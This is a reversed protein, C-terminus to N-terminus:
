DLLPLSTLMLAQQALLKDGAYVVEVLEKGGLVHDLIMMEVHRAAVLPGIRADHVPEPVDGVLRDLLDPYEVVPRGAVELLEAAPAARVLVPLQQVRPLVLQPRAGLGPHLLRPNDPCVTHVAQVAGVCCLERHAQTGEAELKM